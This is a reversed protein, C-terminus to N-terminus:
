RVQEDASMFRHLIGMGGLEAMKIAMEIETVTDM